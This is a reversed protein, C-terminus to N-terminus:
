IRCLFARRAPLEFVPQVYIVYDLSPLMIGKSVLEEVREQVSMLNMLLQIFEQSRREDLAGASTGFVSVDLTPDTFKPARDRLAVKLTLAVNM